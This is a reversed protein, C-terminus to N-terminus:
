ARWLGLAMLLFGILALLGHRLAPQPAFRGTPDLTRLALGFGGGIFLATGLLALLVFGTRPMEDRALAQEHWALRASRPERRLEPDEEERDALLHAIRANAQQLLAPHPVYFSRTALIASRVERWALLALARDGRGEAQEAVQRLLDLARVSPGAGPTYMRAARGLTRIAEEARGAQLAEQGARLQRSSTVLVRVTLMGVCTLM